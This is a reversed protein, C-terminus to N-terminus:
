DAIDVEAVEMFSSIYEPFVGMQPGMLKAQPFLVKRKERWIKREGQPVMVGEEEYSWTPTDKSQRMLPM